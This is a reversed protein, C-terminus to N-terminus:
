LIAFFFEYEKSFPSLECDVLLYNKLFLKKQTKDMAGFQAIAQAKNGNVYSDLVMEQYEEITNFNHSKLLNVISKMITTGTPEPSTKPKHLFPLVFTM